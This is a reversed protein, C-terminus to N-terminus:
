PYENIAQHVSVIEIQRDAERGGDRKGERERGRNGQKKM